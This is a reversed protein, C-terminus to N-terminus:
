ASWIKVINMADSTVFRGSKQDLDCSVMNADHNDTKPLDFRVLFKEDSLIQNRALASKQTNDLSNMYQTVRRSLNKKGYSDKDLTRLYEIDGSKFLLYIQDQNVM